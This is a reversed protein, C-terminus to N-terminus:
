KANHRMAGAARKHGAAKALRDAHEMGKERILAGQRTMNWHDKSFPNNGGGLPNGGGGPNAGGGTTPGWWHPKSQKAQIDAIWDKPSTGDEALVQIQGTTEDKTVKFLREAQLLADDRAHEIVKADRLVAGVTDHITRRSERAAYKGNTEALTDREKTLAQIQREMPATRSALTGALRREVMEEIASEDLKGAAAAELEPIRDLQAVVDEHKLEGWVTLGEKTQAHNTRENELAQQLRQVDATTKVGSVGTLEFKGNKETYLASIDESLGDLSDMVASLTM